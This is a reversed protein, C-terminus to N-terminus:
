QSLFLWEKIIPRYKKVQFSISCMTLWGNELKLPKMIDHLSKLYINSLDDGQECRYNRDQPKDPRGLERESSWRSAFLIVLTVALLRRPRFFRALYSNHNMNVKYNRKSKM